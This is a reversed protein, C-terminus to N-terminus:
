ARFAYVRRALCPVLETPRSRVRRQEFSTTSALPDEMALHNLLFVRTANRGTDAGFVDGSAPGVDHEPKLTSSAGNALRCATPQM